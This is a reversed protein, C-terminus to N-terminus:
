ILENVVKGILERVSKQYDVSYQGTFRNAIICNITLARHGMLKSLGYIASTEMEFNTIKMNKYRFNSLKENLMTDNVDLRLVRGQPGYFGIATATIGSYFGLNKAKALLDADCEVLYPRSLRKDWATERVFKRVFGSDSYGETNQYYHLVGDFGLGHSSALFSDVPIDAQLAGSTGLRIFTLQKHETKIKRSVLDINAVADLESLVIDINDTGMGTSIASIRQGNKTGTHTVIERKQTQFDVTDFFSSVLPVRGPDGVLIITDALNEPLLNCHYVSGNPNLVLESAALKQNM